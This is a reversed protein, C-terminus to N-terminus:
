VSISAATSFFCFFLEFIHRSLENFLFVIYEHSKVKTKLLQWWSKGCLDWKWKGYFSSISTHSIATGEPPPEALWHSLIVCSLRLSFAWSLPGGGLRDVTHNICTAFWFLLIYLLGRVKSSEQMRMYKRGLFWVNILSCFFQKREVAHCLFYFKMPTQPLSLPLTAHCERWIASSSTVEQCQSFFLSLPLFIVSQMEWRSAWQAPMWWDEGEREAGTRGDIQGWPVCVWVICTYGYCM